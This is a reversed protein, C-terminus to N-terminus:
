PAGSISSPDQLSMLTWFLSSTSRSKVHLMLSLCPDVQDGSYVWHDHVSDPYGPLGAGVLPYQTWTRADGAEAM